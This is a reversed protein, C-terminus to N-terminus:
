QGPGTIKDMAKLATYERSRSAHKSMLAKICDETFVLEHELAHAPENSEACSRVLMASQVTMGHEETKCFGVLQVSVAVPIDDIEPAVQAMADNILKVLSERLSDYETGPLLESAM